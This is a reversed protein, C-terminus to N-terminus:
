SFISGARNGHGSGTLSGTKASLCLHVEICACTCKQGDKYREQERGEEWSYLSGLQLLQQCFQVFVRSHIEKFSEVVKITFKCSKSSIYMKAYLLEIETILFDVM